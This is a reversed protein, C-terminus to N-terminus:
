QKNRVDLVDPELGTEVGSPCDAQLPRGEFRAPRPRMAIASLKTLFTNVAAPGTGANFAIRKASGDSFELALWTVPEDACGPCQKLRTDIVALLAPDILAQVDRWDKKTIKAVFKQEPCRDPDGPSRSINVISTSDISMESECWGVCM